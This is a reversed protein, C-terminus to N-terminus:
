RTVVAMHKQRWSALDSRVSCQSSVHSVVLQGVCSICCFGLQSLETKISNSTFIEPNAIEEKAVRYVATGADHLACCM